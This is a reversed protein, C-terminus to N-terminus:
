KVERSQIVYGSFKFYARILWVNSWPINICSVIRSMIKGDKANLLMHFANFYQLVIVFRLVIRIRLKSSFLVIHYFYYLM